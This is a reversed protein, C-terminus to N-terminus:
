CKLLNTVTHLRVIANFECRAGYASRDISTRKLQLTSQLYQRNTPNTLNPNFLAALGTHQYRPRVVVTVVGWM